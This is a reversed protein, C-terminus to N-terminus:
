MAASAIATVTSFYKSSSFFGITPAPTDRETIELYIEVQSFRCPMAPSIAPPCIKSDITCVTLTAKLLRANDESSYSPSRLLPLMFRM